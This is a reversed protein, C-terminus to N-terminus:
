EVKDERIVLAISQKEDVISRLTDEDIEQNLFLQELLNEDVVEVKDCVANYQEESIIGLRLAEELKDVSPVYNAQVVRDWLGLNSLVSKAKENNVKISKRVEKKILKGDLRYNVNGKSDKSGYIESLRFFEEKLEKKRSELLKIQEDIKLLERVIEEFSRM